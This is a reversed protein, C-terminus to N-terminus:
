PSSNTEPSASETVHEVVANKIAEDARGFLTDRM